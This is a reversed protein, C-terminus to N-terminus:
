GGDRTRRRGRMLALGGFLLLGVLGFAGGGGGTGSSSGSSSVAATATATFLFVGSGSQGHGDTVTVTVIASGSQGAAPNLTLACAGAATCDAAGSIGSDPLLAQNSSTATVTLAGTGNLTLNASGAAGGSAAVESFGTVSPGSPLPVMSTASEALNPWANSLAASHAITAGAATSAETALTLVAVAMSGNGPLSGLDCTATQTAYTCTGQTAGSAVYSSGAPVPLKVKLGASASAGENTVIYDVTYLASPTVTAPVDFVASLTAASFLYASGQRLNGGVRKGYAGVLASAGDSSLAVSQGFLDGPAADAATVRGDEVWAGAHNSFSYVAGQSTNDGIQKNYAGVLARTGDASLAVSQGFVDQPVGDSAVLEAAQDWSGASHTYVYAAGTGLNRAGAGVLATSGDGSLAVSFGFYSVGTISFKASESWAGGSNAFAYAAGVYSNKGYAGVLATAGDGSLAVASGFWDTAAGDSATLRSTESWGGGSYTYVYVAGQGHNGDIAKSPAAIL